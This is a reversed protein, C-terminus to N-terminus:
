FPTEVSPSAHATTVENLNELLDAAAGPNGPFTLATQSMQTQLAKNLAGHPSHHHTSPYFSQTHTPFAQLTIPNKSVPSNDMKYM